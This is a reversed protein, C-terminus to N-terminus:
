RFGIAIAFIALVAQVVGLQVLISWHDFAVDRANEAQGRNYADLVNSFRRLARNGTLDDIV